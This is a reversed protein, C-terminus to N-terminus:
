RVTVVRTPCEARLEAASRQRDQHVRHRRAPRSWDALGRVTRGVMPVTMSTPVTPTSAMDRNDDATRTMDSERPRSPQGATQSVRPARPAISMGFAATTGIVGEAHIAM